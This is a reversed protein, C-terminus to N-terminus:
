PRRTRHSRRAAGQVPDQKEGPALIAKCVFNFANLFDERKVKPEWAQQLIFGQLIALMLRSLADPEVLTSLRGSRQARAFADTLIKRQDIGREVIELIQKSRLAEAWVQIGVKRRMQEEPSKLLLFFAKALSPLAVALDESELFKALLATEQAHRQQAIAAIIEDKSRFYRYIAGASLDGEKIITDM